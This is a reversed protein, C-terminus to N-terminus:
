SPSVHCMAALLLSLIGLDGLTNAAAASLDIMRWATLTVMFCHRFHHFPNDNMHSAIDAVFGAMATPSIHFRRLLGFSHLMATLLRRLEGDDLLDPDASTWSRMLEVDAASTADLVAFADADAESLQSSEKLEGVVSPHSASGKFTPRSSGRQHDRNVAFARRVFIAGGIADCLDRLPSLENGSSYLGFHLQVFGVVM